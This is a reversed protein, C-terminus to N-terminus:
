PAIRQSIQSLPKVAAIRLATRVGRTATVSSRRGAASVALRPAFPGTVATPPAAQLLRRHARLGGSAMSPRGGVYLARGRLWRGVCLGREAHREHVGPAQELRPLDRRGHQLARGSGPDRSPHPGAGDGRVGRLAWRGRHAGGRRYAVRPPVRALELLLRRQLLGHHVGTDSGPVGRGRAPRVARRLPSTATGTSARESRGGSSPSM